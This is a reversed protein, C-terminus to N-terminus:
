PILMATTGSRPDAAGPIVGQFMSSPRCGHGALVSVFGEEVGREEVPRIRAVDLVEVGAVLLVRGRDIGLPLGEEAGQLVVPLRDVFFARPAEQFFGSQGIGAM